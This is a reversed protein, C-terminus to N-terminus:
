ILYNTSDKCLSLYLWAHHCKGTIGASWSASAPFDWTHAWGLCNLSKSWMKFCFPSPIYSLTFARPEIGLVLGVLFGKFCLFSKFTLYESCIWIKFVYLIDLRNVTISFICAVFTMVKIGNQTMVKIGNQLITVLWVNFCSLIKTLKRLYNLRNFLTFFKIKPSLHCTPKLQWSLHIQFHQYM